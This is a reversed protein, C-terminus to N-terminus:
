AGPESTSSENWSERIRRAHKPLSRILSRRCIAPVENRAIEKRASQFQEVSFDPNKMLELVGPQRAYQHAVAGDAGLNSMTSNTTSRAGVSRRMTRKMAGFAGELENTSAPIRPDDFCKFLHDGYRGARSVLDDIFEGTVKGIGSRPATNVLNALHADFRLKAEASSSPRDERDSKNSLERAIGRVIETHRRARGALQAEKWTPKLAESLKDLLRWRPQGPPLPKQRCEDVLKRLTELREHRKLEAPDLIARGSVRSNAAVAECIEEVLRVETMPKASASPTNSLAQPEERTTSKSAMSDIVKAIDRVADARREVSDQVLSLDAKIPKACNGLFHTQCYQHPKDPFVRQIAPVLGCEKDSVIGVVPVKMSKVRELLPVLDDVGRFRKREGFLPEGSIADWVLYLVSSRNEFQVGDCMLVIGGQARLRNQIQDSDGRQLKTLAVFDRYVRGTHRQDLFVKKDHLDRTIRALPVGDLLHRAGVNLTVDLGYIRKPLVVRLDRPARFIQRPGPCDIHGCRKDRRKLMFISDLGRVPRSIVQYIALDRDCIPCEKQAATYVVDQGVPRQFDLM